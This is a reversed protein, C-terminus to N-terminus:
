GDAKRQPLNSQHLLGELGQEGSKVRIVLHVYRGLVRGLFLNKVQQVMPRQFLYLGQGSKGLLALSQAVREFLLKREKLPVQEDYFLNCPGNIFLPGSQSLQPLTECLLTVLQHCTFVRSLRIRELLIRPDSKRHRSIRAILYPDFSNAADILTIPRGQAALQGMLYASLRSMAEGFFLISMGSKALSYLKNSPLVADM